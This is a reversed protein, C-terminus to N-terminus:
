LNRIFELYNEPTVVMGQVATREKALELSRTERKVTEADSYDFCAQILIKKGQANEALFDVEYREKTLYYFVRYGKRRLALFVINEFLYGMDKNTLLNVSNLLGTDIAYVKRPNVTQQKLSQSYLPVTFILYADEIHLIYEYLTNKSISYGLGRLENYLKNVSLMRGPMSLLRRFLEKLLPLNALSWREMVDRFLVVEVYEQLIQVADSREVGVTEPFGGTKMYNFFSFLYRDSTAKGMSSPFTELEPYEEFDFPWVETTISRGRLETAIEKSLLKASSGTLYLRVKKTDHIRRVAKEWGKVNQIEDFFLYCLEEHRSPDISYWTEVVDAIANSKLNNMDIRDDEFNIFLIKSRHVGSKLLNKIHQYLITTKGTRRMGTLVNIKSPIDPISINRQWIEKQLIQDQEEELTLLFKRM